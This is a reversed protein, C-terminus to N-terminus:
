LRKDLIATERIFQITLNLITRNLYYSFSEDGYLLLQTLVKNSLNSHGFPRLVDYVGALLDRRQADFSPCRLLFHEADEIGDNSPCMPIVADRFNHKFKHFNLKSM